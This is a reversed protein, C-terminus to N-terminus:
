TGPNTARPAPEPTLVAVAAFSAAVALVAGGAAYPWRRRSRTTRARIDDLAYGPEVDAVADSLLERLQDTM